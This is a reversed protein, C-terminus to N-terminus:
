TKRNEKLPYVTQFKSSKKGHEYFTHFNISRKTHSTSSIAVALIGRLSLLSRMLSEGCCLM